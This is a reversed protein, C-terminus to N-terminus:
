IHRYAIDRGGAFVIARHQDPQPILFFIRDRGRKIKVWDKIGEPGYRNRASLARQVIDKQLHFELARLISAPKISIEGRAVETLSKLTDARTMTPLSALHNPDSSWHTRTWFLDWGFLPYDRTPLQEAQIVAESIELDPSAVPVTQEEVRPTLPLEPMGQPAVLWEIQMKLLEISEGRSRLIEKYIEEIPIRTDDILVRAFAMEEEDVVVRNGNSRALVASRASLMARAKQLKQAKRPDAQLKLDNLSGIEPNFDLNNRYYVRLSGDPIGMARYLRYWELSLRTQSQALEYDQLQQKCVSLDDDEIEDLPQLPQVASIVPLEGQKRLLKEMMRRQHRNLRDPMAAATRSLANLRDVGVPNEESM